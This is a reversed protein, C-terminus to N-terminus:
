IYLKKTKKISYEVVREQLTKGISKYRSILKDCGSYSRCKGSASVWITRIVEMVNIIQAKGSDLASLKLKVDILSTM